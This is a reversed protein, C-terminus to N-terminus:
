VLVSDDIETAEQAVISSTEEDRRVALEYLRALLTPHTRVLELFRERPLHLTVTPHSAVVDANSPRRLVLAVEGVVEGPGLHALLTKEKEERHVVDVAGSALLHLGDSEAGQAILREGTEFTKTEFCKVLQPREEVKIARLLESTRVLNEVMRRRCYEAFRAGIAPQEDVIRELEPKDARLLISPRCAIVAAARPARSLLAMEGILAGAGVRALRAQSGGQGRRVELEGRAVFFAEAGVEGERIVQEDRGVLVINLIGVMARLEAAELTSFMPQPLVKMAALDSDDLLEQAFTATERAQEVLANGSATLRQFEAAGDGLDPPAPRQPVLHSSGKSFVRVIREVHEDSQGGHKELERCAAVALPLQGSRTAASIAHGLWERALEGQNLEAAAAACVLWAAGNKPQAKLMAAAWALADHPQKALLSEIARDVPRADRDARGLGPKKM